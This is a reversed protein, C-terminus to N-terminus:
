TMVAATTGKKPRDHGTLSGRIETRSPSCSRAHGLLHSSFEEEASTIICEDQHTWNLQCPLLGSQQQQKAGARQEENGPVRM